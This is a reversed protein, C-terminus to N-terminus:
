KHSSSLYMVPNNNLVYLQIHFFFKSQTFDYKQTIILFFHQTSKIVSLRASTINTKTILTHARYFTQIPWELPIFCDYDDMSSSHFLTHLLLNILLRARYDYAYKKPVHM